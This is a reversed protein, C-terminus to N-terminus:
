LHATPANHHSANRIRLQFSLSFILFGFWQFFVFIFIDPSDLAVYQRLTSTWTGQQPDLCSALSWLSSTQAVGPHQCDASSSPHEGDEVGGSACRCGSSPLSSQAEAPGKGSRCIALGKSKTLCWPPPVLFSDNGQVRRNASLFFLGHCQWTIAGNSTLVAWFSYFSFKISHMQHNLLAPLHPQYGLAM